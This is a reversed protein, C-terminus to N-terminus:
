SFHGGPKKIRVWDGKEVQSGSHKRTSGKEVSKRVHRHKNLTTEPNVVLMAIKIDPALMTLASRIKRGFLPEFPSVETTSYPTSRYNFLLNSTASEINWSHNKAETLREKLVRNFREVLRNQSPTYLAVKTHIIDLGKLFYKMGNSVFQTGNDSVM